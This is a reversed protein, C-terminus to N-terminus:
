DEEKSVYKNFNDYMYNAKGLIDEDLIDEFRSDLISDKFDKIWSAFLEEDINYVGNIEFMKRLRALSLVNSETIFGDNKDLNYEIVNNIVEAFYQANDVLAGKEEDDMHIFRNRFLEIGTKDFTNLPVDASLMTLKTNFEINEMKDLDFYTSVDTEMDDIEEIPIFDDEASEIETVVDDTGLRDSCNEELYEDLFKNMVRVREVVVHFKRANSSSLTDYTLEDDKDNNNCDDDWYNDSETDNSSTSYPIDKLEDVWAKIFDSYCDVDYYMNDKEIGLFYIFNAIVIFLEKFSLHKVIDDDHPIIRELIDFANNMEDVYAQTLNNALFSSTKEFNSDWDELFFSTMLCESIARMINSNNNQGETFGCCDKIFGHHSLKRVENAWNTGLANVGIQAANMPSGSNYDRMENQIDEDTCDYLIIAQINYSLIRKQLEEPLQNFKKGIIDIQQEGFIRNGDEDVKYVVSGDKRRIIQEKGRVIKTEPIYGSYTIISNRTSKSISFENNIYREITTIRQKGDLLWSITCGPHFPDDQEAILINPIRKEELIRRILNGTQWPKWQKAYRQLPHDPRLGHEQNKRELWEKVPQVEEGVNKRM